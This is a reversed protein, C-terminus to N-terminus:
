IARFKFMLRSHFEITVCKKFTKKQEKLFSFFRPVLLTWKKEEEDSWFSVMKRCLGFVEKKMLVCKNRENKLDSMQILIRNLCRKITATSWFFNKIINLRLRFHLFIFVSLSIIVYIHSTIQSLFKFFVVVRFIVNPLFISFSM